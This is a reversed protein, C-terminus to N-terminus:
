RAHHHSQTAAVGASFDRFPQPRWLKPPPPLLTPSKEEDKTVIEEKEEEIKESESKKGMFGMITAISFGLKNCHNESGNSGHFTSEPEKKTEELDSSGSLREDVKEEETEFSSM